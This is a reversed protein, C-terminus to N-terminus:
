RRGLATPQLRVQRMSETLARSLDEQEDAAIRQLAAGSALMVGHMDALMRMCSHAGSRLIRRATSRCDGFTPTRRFAVVSALATRHSLLV